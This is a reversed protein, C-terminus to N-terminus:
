VQIKNTTWLTHVKTRDAATMNGHYCGANIGNTCLDLCLQQVDKQSFCYIIYFNLKNVHRRKKGSQKHFDKKILDVIEKMQEKCSSPKEKVEYFLNPRNYSAKFVLCTKLNLISKCDELVKATATATLGM